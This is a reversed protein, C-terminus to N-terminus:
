GRLSIHEEEINSQVYSGHEGVVSLAGGISIAPGTNIQCIYKGEDAEQIDEIRLYYTERNDHSVSVRENQTIVVPYVALTGKESHLWAVKYHPGLNEVTCSFQAPIRNSSNEEKCLSQVQYKACQIKIKQKKYKTSQVKYKACVFKAYV